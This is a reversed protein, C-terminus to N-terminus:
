FVVGMKSWCGFIILIVKPKGSNKDVCWFWNMGNSGEPSVALKLIRLGSHGCGNKVMSVWINKM